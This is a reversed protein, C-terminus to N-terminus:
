LTSVETSVRKPWAQFAFIMDSFWWWKGCNEIRVRSHGGRHQKPMKWRRARCRVQPLWFACRSICNGGGWRQGSFCSYHNSSCKLLLFPPTINVVFFFQLWWIPRNPTATTPPGDVGGGGWHNKGLFHNKPFIKLYKFDCIIHSIGHLLDFHYSLFHARSLGDFNQWKERKRCIAAIASLLIKIPAVKLARREAEITGLVSFITKFHGTHRSM